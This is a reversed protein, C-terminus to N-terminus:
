GDTDKTDMSADKVKKSYVRKEGLTQVRSHVLYTECKDDKRTPSFSLQDTQQDM